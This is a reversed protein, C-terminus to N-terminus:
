IGPKVDDLTAERVAWAAFSSLWCKEWGRKQLGTSYVVEIIPSIINLEHVWRTEDGSGLYIRDKKLTKM